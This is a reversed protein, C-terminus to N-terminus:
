EVSESCSQRCVGNASAGQPYKRFRLQLVQGGCVDACSGCRTCEPDAVSDRGRQVYDEMVRIGMPCRMSCQGCLLKESGPRVRVRFLAVRGILSYLAGLPCIARCFARPALVELLCITAVIVAATTVLGMIGLVVLNVPSIATFVPVSSVASGVVCGILLWYKINRHITWQPLRLKRRALQRRLPERVDGSLDLLLGLPCLWGCFLRGFVLTLALPIAAGGIMTLTATRSAALVELASLPDVFPVWALLRTATPSGQLWAHQQWWSLLLLALFGAAVARHTWTWKRWRTLWRPRGSVQMVGM